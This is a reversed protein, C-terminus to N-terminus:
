DNATRVDRLRQLGPGLDPSGSPLPSGSRPPLSVRVTTGHGTATTMEVSGHHAAVIGSVISLGLGSGPGSRAPSGRWFREFARQRDDPDMGPGNDEVEVVNLAGDRTVRLTVSTGAPTHVYANAVLNTLVQRLQSADGITMVGDDIAGITPHSPHDNDASLVVDDREALKRLRRLDRSETVEERERLLGDLVDGV